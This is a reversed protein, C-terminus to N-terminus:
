LWQDWAARARTLRRYRKDLTWLLAEEANRGRREEAFAVAELVAPAVPQLELLAECEARFFEQWDRRLVEEHDLVRGSEPDRPRFLASQGAEPHTFRYWAAIRGYAEALVRLDVRDRSEIRELAEATGPTPPEVARCAQLARQFLHEVSQAAAQEQVAQLPENTDVAFHMKM